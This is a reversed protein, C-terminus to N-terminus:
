DIPETNAYVVHVSDPAAAALRRAITEEYTTVVVQGVTETQAARVLTQAVASRRRPDLHELPEDFWAMPVHTTASIVLLRTIIVAMAQEGGSLDALGLDLQGRRMRLEGDATLTLGESGFLRKWRHSIERVLPEIRESLYRDALSVLTHRATQLLLEERAAMDLRAQDEVHRRAQVVQQQAAELIARLEGVNEALRKEDNRLRTLAKHAEPGPDDITPLAPQRLQDLHRVFPLIDALRRDAREIESQLQEIEDNSHTGSIEHTHLARHRESETLPRLCTPCQTIGEPLLDGAAAAHAARLEAASAASRADKLRRESEKRAAEVSRRPAESDVEMLDGIKDLLGRLTTNHEEVDTRYRDWIDAAAILIEAERIQGTLGDREAIARDLDAQAAAVSAEADRIIGDADGAQDKLSGVIGGVEKERLELVEAAELLPTVGLLTALHNRVPFATDRSRALQTGFVLRDILGPDVAWAERLLERYTDEDLEIGDRTATFTSRGSGRLLSRSVTLQTTETVQLDVTVEARDSDHRVARAANRGAPLGLLCWRVAEFLSTKGVGNPAVFFVVRHALDVEADRYARWNKLHVRKIM